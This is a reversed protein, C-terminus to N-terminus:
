IVEYPILGGSRGTQLGFTLFGYKLALANPATSRAAACGLLTPLRQQYLCWVASYAQVTRAVHGADVARAMGTCDTDHRRLVECM